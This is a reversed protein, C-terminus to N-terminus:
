YSDSGHLVQRFIIRVFKWPVRGHQDSRGNQIESLQGSSKGSLDGSPKRRYKAGGISLLNRLSMGLQRFIRLKYSIKGSLEGWPPSRRYEDRHVSVKRSGGFHTVIMWPVTRDFESFLHSSGTRDWSPDM